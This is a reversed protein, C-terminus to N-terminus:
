IINFSGLVAAIVFSMYFAGTCLNVKKTLHMQEKNYDKKPIHFLFSMPMYDFMWHPKRLLHILLLKDIEPHLSSQLLHYFHLKAIMSTTIWLMLAYILEVVRMDAYLIVFKLIM